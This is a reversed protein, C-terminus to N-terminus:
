TNMIEQVRIYENYKTFFNRTYYIKHSFHDHNSLKLHMIQLISFKIIKELLVFIYKKECFLCSFTIM